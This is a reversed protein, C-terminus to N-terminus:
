ESRVLINGGSSRLKLLPGGGNVLGSLRGRKSGNSDLTLTLGKADVGGGSTSADLRFAASKDITATVSGGSTNLICDDKLPGHIGARISGGSTHARLSNEVSDIQINGGSTSLEASGAVRGVKINGGSTELDVPGRAESMTIPGGSTHATVEAGMKGLRIPGGSTRANVDGNLDGVEIAGGSTRLEAGFSAPVTVIFDVNVPPWSGFRFGSPRSEYKAIAIVDNGSQEFTLELKKLLDDAESDSDAKIKQVATVTVVSGEGPTVQLKGGMTELRVKGVGSIHFTKEVKREIRATAAFLPTVLIAGLLLVRTSILM